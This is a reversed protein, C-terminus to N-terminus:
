YVCVCFSVSSFYLIRAAGMEYQITLDLPFSEALVPNKGTSMYWYNRFGAHNGNRTMVGGVILAVLGGLAAAINDAAQAWPRYKRPLVESTVAHLLPQAGYSLGTVVEGAIAMNM